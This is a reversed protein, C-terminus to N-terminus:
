GPRQSPLAPRGAGPRARGRGARQGGAGGPCGSGPGAALAAPRALLRGALSWAEDQDPAFAQASLVPVDARRAAEELLVSKGIGNPGTVLVVRPGCGAAAAAIM